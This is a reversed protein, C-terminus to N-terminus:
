SHFLNFDCSGDGVAGRIGEVAIQTVDTLYRHYGSLPLGLKRVKYM